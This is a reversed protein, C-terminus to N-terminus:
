LMFILVGNFLLFQFGLLQSPFTELILFLLTFLIDSEQVLYHYQASSSDKTHIYTYLVNYLYM